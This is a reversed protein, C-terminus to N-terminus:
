FSAENATFGYNPTYYATMLYMHKTTLRLLMGFLSTHVTNATYAHLTTGCFLRHTDLTTARWDSGEQLELGCLSHTWHYLLREIPQVDM